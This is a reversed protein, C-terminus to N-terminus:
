AGGGVLESHRGRVYVQLRELEEHSHASQELWANFQAPPFREAAGETEAIEAYLGRIDEVLATAKEDTLPEPREPVFGDVEDAIAAAADSDYEGFSDGHDLPDGFAPIGTAALWDRYGQRLREHGEDTLVITERDGQGRTKIFGGHTELKWMVEPLAYVSVGVGFTVAARKLADSILDKSLGKPSSGVDPRTRGFVTLVGQMVKPDSTGKYDVEWEGGVVANLREIVLRADLYAVIVCGAPRTGNRWVSQVKFRIAEPMFPRRLHLLADNLNDAPLAIGPLVVSATAAGGGPIADGRIDDAAGAPVVAEDHAM